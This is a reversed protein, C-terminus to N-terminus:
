YLSQYYLIGFTNWITVGIFLILAILRLSISKRINILWIVPLIVLAKFYIFALPHIDWLPALLINQEELKTATLAYVTLSLDLSNLVYLLPITITFLIKIAKNKM